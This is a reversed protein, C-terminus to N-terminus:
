GVLDACHSWKGSESGKWDLWVRKSKDIWSVKLDNLLDSGCFNGMWGRWCACEHAPSLPSGLLVLLFVSLLQQTLDALLGRHRSCVVFIVCWVVPALVSDESEALSLDVLHWEYLLGLARTFDRFPLRVILCSLMFNECQKRRSNLLEILDCALRCDVWAHLAWWRHDCLTNELLHQALCRGRLEFRCEGSWFLNVRVAKVVKSYDRKLM